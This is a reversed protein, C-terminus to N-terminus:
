WTALAAAITTRASEAAVGGLANGAAVQAPCSNGCPLFLDNVFDGFLYTHSVAGQNFPISMWGAISLDVKSTQCAPDMCFGYSGAKWRVNMQALFQPVIASKGQNAAEQAVVQGWADGASPSGGVLIKFFTDRAQGSLATGNDVAAYLRAADALTLENRVSGQFGCGIFPQSLHTSSMGLGNAMAQVPGLGWHIAFARTFINNSAQIMQTLANGITTTQANAPIEPITSPCLTPTPPGPSTFYYTIPDSLSVNQQLTYLLYLVKIASAPEFRFDPNDAVIPSAAPDSGIFYAGHLGGAWGNSEAYNHVAASAPNIPAQSANSDDLEVVAYRRVGNDLYSSLDILRTGHNILNNTVTTADLGFWWWWAEGESPVLIADWGGSPDPALATVRMDDKKVHDGIAAISQGIWWEGNKFDVATNSIMIVAFVRNGGDVYPRLSVLRANNKALLNGVTVDDVGFFWWWARSQSDTNPVMVVAFRLGDRTWYPDISILRRGKVLSGVTNADVGFYWWWASGYAGTNQVMSVAFTPVSPDEVRVETLRAGNKDILAGVQAATVGTYWWRAVAITTAQDNTTPFADTAAAPLAGIVLAAIVVLCVILLRPGRVGVQRMNSV